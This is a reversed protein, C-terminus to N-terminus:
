GIQLLLLQVCGIIFGLVAGVLEIFKFEKSMIAFLIDELKDISFAAVKEEVIESINVEKEIKHAYAEIVEPLTSEIETVLIEKIKTITSDNIFMALMPLMETLKQRLFGDIKELGNALTFFPLTKTTILHASSQHLIFDLM